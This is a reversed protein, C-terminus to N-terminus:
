TATPRGTNWGSECVLEVPELTDDAGMFGRYPSSGSTKRIAYSHPKSAVYIGPQRYTHLGQLGSGTIGDGFDWVVQGEGTIGREFHLTLGQPRSVMEWEWKLGAVLGRFATPSLRHVEVPSGVCAEEPLTFYAGGGERVVLTLRQTDQRGECNEWIQYLLYTGPQGPALLQPFNGPGHLIACVPLYFFRGSIGPAPVLAPHPLPGLLSDGAQVYLDWRDLPSPTQAWGLFAIGAFIVAYRM